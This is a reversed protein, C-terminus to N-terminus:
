PEESPKDTDGDGSSEDEDGSSEDGDGSSEDEDRSGDSDGTKDEEGPQKNEPIAKDGEDEIKAAAVKPPHAKAGNTEALFFKSSYTTLFIIPLVSFILMEGTSGM